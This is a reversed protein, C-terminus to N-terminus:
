QASLRGQMSCQVSANLIATTKSKFWVTVKPTVGGPFYAQGDLSAVYHTPVPAAHIGLYIRPVSKTTTAPRGTSEADLYIQAPEIFGTSPQVECTVGTATLVQGVAVTGFSAICNRYTNAVAEFKCDSNKAASSYVGAPFAPTSQAAAGVVTASLIAAAVAVRM